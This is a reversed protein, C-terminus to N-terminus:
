AEVLEETHSEGLQCVAFTQAIDFCTQTGHLRFEIMRADASLHRAAGQGIRVFPTVPADPGVDRVHKNGSRPDQVGLVVEAHFERLGGIYEVGRDDVETKRQKGPRSEAPVFARDFEMGQHVKTASNRANYVNGVGFCGIHFDEVLQEDFRPGEIDHVAAIDVETAEIAEGEAHREEHEAGLPIELVSATRVTGDLFDCTQSAVLDDRQSIWIRSRLIRTREAAYAVVIELRVVVEDKEGVIECQGGECNRLEVFTAPLHFQEEFPDLLVKADLREIACGGVRDLCLNPNGDGHVDEHGDDLLFEVEIATEAFDQLNEADRKELFNMYCLCKRCAERLVFLTM